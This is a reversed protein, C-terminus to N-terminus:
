HLLRKSRMFQVITFAGGGIILSGRAKGLPPLKLMSEASPRCTRTTTDRFTQLLRPRDSEKRVPRHEHRFAAAAHSNHTM